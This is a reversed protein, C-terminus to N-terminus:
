PSFWWYINSGYYRQQLHSRRAAPLGDRIVYIMDYLVLVSDAFYSHGVFGPDVASADITEVPPIITLTGSQGARAYHNFFESWALAQDKSSAYLTIHDAAAQVIPIQQVFHSRAVDPAALVVQGFHIKDKERIMTEVANLLARNGMSHAIVHMTTAGSRAQVDELFDILHQTTWQVSEEDALYGKWTGRSPWSYLIPTGTFEMDYTIQATRLAAEQFTNNYGHIFILVEKRPAAAVAGSVDAFFEEKSEAAVHELVIHKAPNEPLEIKWFSFPRELEGPVHGPPISVTLSGYALSNTANEDPGYAVGKVTPNTTARDTAYFVRVKVISRKQKGGEGVGVEAPPTAAASATARTRTVKVTSVDATKM